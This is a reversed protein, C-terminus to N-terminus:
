LTRMTTTADMAPVAARWAPWREALGLHELYETHLPVCLHGAANPQREHAMVDAVHLIGSLGFGEEGCQAPDHHWAIAEVISDPFSWLGLLYAGVEAHQTDIQRRTDVLWQAHLSPSAPPTRTALVLKGVDHLVGALFAAEATKGPLREHLAIARACAATDFSHQALLDLDFGPFTIPIGAAFLEQSLVLATITEVGIYSIAREVTQVKSRLGFFGSNAINVIKATMALDRRIIRAIEEVSTDDSRLSALLEQYARPPSPLTDVTGVITAIRESSLMAKLKQTRTIAAKLTPADCPKSLYQQASDTARILQGQDAEGSLILRTAQPYLQKVEALFQVGDMDPMRMDSVIVDSPAQALSLLAHVGSDAFRMSWENRMCYMSRRMGELIMADDDVFLVSIM